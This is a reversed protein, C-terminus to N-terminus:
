RSPPLDKVSIQVRLEPVDKIVHTYTHSFIDAHKVYVPKLIKYLEDRKKWAQEDWEKQKEEEKRHQETLATWPRRGGRPRPHMQLPVVGWVILGDDNKTVETYGGWRKNRLIDGVDAALTLAKEYRSKEADAKARARAANAEAEGVLGEWGKLWERVTEASGDVLVGKNSPIEEKLTISTGRGQPGILFMVTFIVKVEERSAWVSAHERLHQDPDVLIKKLAARHKAVAQKLAPPQEKKAITRLIKSAATEHRTFREVMKNAEAVARKASKDEPFSALMRQASWLLSNSERLGDTAKKLADQHSKIEAHPTGGAATRYHSAFSEEVDTLAGDLAALDALQDLLADAESAIRRAAVRAISPNM